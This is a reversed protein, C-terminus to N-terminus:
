TGSIPTHFNAISCRDAFFHAALIGLEVCGMISRLVHSTYVLVYFYIPRPACSSVRASAASVGARLDQTILPLTSTPSRRRLPLHPLTSSRSMTEGRTAHTVRHYVTSNGNGQERSVSADQLLPLPFVLIWASEARGGGKPYVGPIYIIPCFTALSSADRFVLFFHCVGELEMGYKADNMIMKIM